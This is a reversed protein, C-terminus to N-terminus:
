KQMRYPRQHSRSGFWWAIALGTFTAFTEPPVGVDWSIYILTATVAPRFMARLGNVIPNDSKLSADHTISESLGKYDGRVQHIMLDQDAKLQDAEMTLKHLALVHENEMALKKIELHRTMYKEGLSGIAGIATGVGGGTFIDIWSM